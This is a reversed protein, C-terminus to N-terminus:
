KPEIQNRRKSKGWPGFTVLEESATPHIAVCSDFDSKIAGMKIAVGFGQIIEDSSMGICHLGIVREEEGQCILKYKTLPKDESMLDGDLFPGYYLNQFESTYIKLEEAPYKQRAQEETLGITGIVPHSFVVTPVNDYDAKANPVGGFLRDALRRGAAVAMPTLEVKGCVDGLAYIGPTSTNQYEDVPIYGRNDTSISVSPLHLQPTLPHRGIASIIVEFGRHVQGNKLHLSLTGDAEKVIREPISWPNVQIGSHKMSDHLHSKIMNDFNRLATDGRVFLSTNGGLGNLVGALEVAIYGAGIIATKKPLKELSFFGDSNIALNGGPIPLEDPAGGVAIVVHNATYRKGGASITTIKTEPSTSEFSAYESIVTVGIDPLFTKYINSLSRVYNDRSRKLKEWSFGKKEVDFGYEKADDLSEALHAANYMIKKPVCGVNVCTGGYAGGEFVAVKAGYGAAREACSVGGSGAGIVVLDFHSPSPSLSPSSTKGESYAYIGRGAISM